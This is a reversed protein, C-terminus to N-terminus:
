QRRKPDSKARLMRVLPAFNLCGWVNISCVAVKRKVFMILIRSCENPRESDWFTQLPICMRYDKLQEQSGWEKTKCLCLRACVFRKIRLFFRRVFVLLLCYFNNTLTQALRCCGKRSRGWRFKLRADEVEKQLPQHFSCVESGNVMHGPVIM